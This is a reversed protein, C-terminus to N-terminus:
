QNVKLKKFIRKLFNPKSKNQNQDQNMFLIMYDQYPIELCDDWKKMEEFFEQTNQVRAIKYQITKSEKLKDISKKYLKIAKGGFLVYSPSERLDINM